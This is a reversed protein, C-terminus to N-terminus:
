SGARYLPFYGSQPQFDSEKQRIQCLHQYLEQNHVRGGIYYPVTEPSFKGKFDRISSTGGGLHLYHLQHAQGWQILSYLMFDNPRLHVAGPDCGTLHHHGIAGHHLLISSAVPCGDGDHVFFLSAGQCGKLLMHFYESSFYYYENAGLRRMSAQYLKIFQEINADTKEVPSFRLGAATATRLNKRVSSHFIPSTTSIEQRLDIYINDCSKRIEYRSSLASVDTLFPDFRIFETVIDGSTCFAALLDLLRDTLRNHERQDDANTAVCSYEYPSILDWLETDLGKFCLLDNIRRTVFPLLAIGGDEELAFVRVPYREGHRASKLYSPLLYVSRTSIRGFLSEYEAFDDELSLVRVTQSKSAKM